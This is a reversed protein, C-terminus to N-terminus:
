GERLPYSAFLVTSLKGTLGALPLAVDCHWFTQRGLPVASVAVIPAVGRVTARLIARLHRKIDDALEAVELGTAERGFRRILNTGSVRFRYDQDGVIEILALHGIWPRLEQVPLDERWPMPRGGCKQLWYSVLSQLPAPLARAQAGLRHIKQQEAM